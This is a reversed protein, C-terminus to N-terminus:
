RTAPNSVIAALHHFRNWIPAHSQTNAATVATNKIRHPSPSRHGGGKDM